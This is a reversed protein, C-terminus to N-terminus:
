AKVDEAQEPEGEKQEFIEDINVKLIRAVAIAEDSSFSYSGNEKHTYTSRPFPKGLQISLLNMMEEQTCVDERIGKLKEKAYLRLM